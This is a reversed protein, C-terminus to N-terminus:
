IVSLGFGRGEWICDLLERTRSSDLIVTTLLLNICILLCALVICTLEVLLVYGIWMGTGVVDIKSELSNDASSAPKDM